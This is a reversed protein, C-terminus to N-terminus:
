EEGGGEAALRDLEERFKRLAIEAQRDSLEKVSERGPVQKGDRGKFTTLGVLTEQAAERDGEVHELILKALERKTDSMRGKGTARATETKGGFDVKGAKGADKGAAAMAKKVEDWTFSLGLIAKTARAKANTVAARRVRSVDIESLPLRRARKKKQGSEDVWDESGNFFQDKTSRGGDAEVKRGRWEAVVTVNFDIVRGREDEYADKEVKIDSFSVGYVEAFRMCGKEDLYPKGGFDTWQSPQTYTIAVGKLQEVIKVRERADAVTEATLRHVDEPVVERDVHQLEREESM